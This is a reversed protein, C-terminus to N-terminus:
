TKLRTYEIDKPSLSLPTQSRVRKFAYLVYM